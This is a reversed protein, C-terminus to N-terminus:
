FHSTSSLCDILGTHNYFTPPFDPQPGEAIGLNDQKGVDMSLKCMLLLSRFHVHFTVATALNFLLGETFMFLLLLRKSLQSCFFLNHSLKYGVAKKAGQSGICVHFESSGCPQVFYPWVDTFGSASTM